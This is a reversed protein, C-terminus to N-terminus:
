DLGHIGGVTSFAHIKAEQYLRLSYNDLTSEVSSGMYDKLFCIQDDKVGQLNCPNVHMGMSWLTWLSRVRAWMKLWVKGAVYCEM